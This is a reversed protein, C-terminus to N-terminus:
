DCPFIFQDARVKRALVKRLVCNKELGILEIHLALCFGLRITPIALGNELFTCLGTLM